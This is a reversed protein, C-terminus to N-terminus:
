NLPSESGPTVLKCVSHAGILKRGTQDLTWINHCMGILDKGSEHERISWQCVAAVDRGVQLCSMVELETVDYSSMECAYYKMIGVASKAHIPSDLEPLGLRAAFKRDFRMVLNADLSFSEALSIPDNARYADMARRLVAPIELAPRIFM